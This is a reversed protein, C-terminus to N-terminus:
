QLKQDIIGRLCAMDTRTKECQVCRFHGDRRRLKKGLFQELWSGVVGGMGYGYFPSYPFYGFNNMYNQVQTKERAGALFTIVLDANKNSPTLGKSVLSKTIAEEIYKNVFVASTDKVGLQRIVKGPEFRFTKYKRFDVNKDFDVHVQAQSTITALLWSMVLIKSKMIKIQLLQITKVAITL